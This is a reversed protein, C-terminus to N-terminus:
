ADTANVVDLTITGLSTSRLGADARSLGAADGLLGGAAVRGGVPRGFRRRLGHVRGLRQDVGHRQRAGHAGLFRSWDSVLRVVDDRWDEDRPTLRPAPVMPPLARLHTTARRKDPTPADRAPCFSSSGRLRAKAAHFARRV